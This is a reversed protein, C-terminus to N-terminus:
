TKRKWYNKHERAEQEKQEFHETMVEAQSKGCKWCKMQDSGKHYTVSHDCGNM